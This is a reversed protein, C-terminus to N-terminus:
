PRVRWMPVTVSRGPVTPFELPRFVVDLPADPVLEGAPADVVYGCLRVAPDDDLAVLAAVFPVMEAFAPLFPRQVVAWSFLTGRGSAREWALVGGDHPCSEQPYWVWARCTTCRTILLEGRTAGAFFPATIPDTVDPLPFDDRKIAM